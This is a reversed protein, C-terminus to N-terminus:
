GENGTKPKLDFQKRPAKDFRKVETHPAVSAPERRATSLTHIDTLKLTGDANLQADACLIEYLGAVNSSYAVVTVPYVESDGASAADEVQELFARDAGTLQLQEDIDLAMVEQQAAVAMNFAAIRADSTAFKKLLIDVGDKNAYRWFVVARGNIVPLKRVGRKPQIFSVEPRKGLAKYFLDQASFNVPGYVRRHGASIQAQANMHEDHATNLAELMAEQTFRGLAGFRELWWQTEHSNKV